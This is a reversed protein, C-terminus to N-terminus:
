ITSADMKEACIQTSYPHNDNTGAPARLRRVFIITAFRM